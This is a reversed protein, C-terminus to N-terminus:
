VNVYYLVDAWEMGSAAGTPTFRGLGLRLSTVIRTQDSKVIRETEMKVRRRWGWKCGNRNFSVVQGYLNDAPTDADITGDTYSKKLAISSVVPHGFVKAVQGVFATAENGAKDRTMFEDMLLMGDAVYPDVVHVFDLPNNPHGWDHM